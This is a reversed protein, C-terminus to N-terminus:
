PAEQRLQFAESQEEEMAALREADSVHRVHPNNFGHKAHWKAARMTKFPGTVSDYLHGHSETTPKIARFAVATENRRGVYPRRYDSM